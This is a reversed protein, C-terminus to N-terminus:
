KSEKVFGKSANVLIKMSDTIKKTANGTGTICPKNLERCIIAAHSLIGGHDTVVAGSKKILPLYDTSTTECVLINGEVFSSDIFNDLDVIRATGTIKGPHATLGTVMINSDNGIDALFETVVFSDQLLRNYDIFWINKDKDFIAEFYGCLYKEKFTSELKKELIKQLYADVSLFNVCKRILPLLDNNESSYKWSRFDYSFAVSNKKINHGQTLQHHSGKTIEGFIGVQNIVLSIAHQNNIHPVFEITYKSALFTQKKLWLVLEEIYLNRNRLIPDQTKKPNARISYKELRHSNEFSRFMKVNNLVDDVEFSKSKLIPIDIVNNLQKLRDSKASDELVISSSKESGAIIFWDALSSKKKFFNNDTNEM